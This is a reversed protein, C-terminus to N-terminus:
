TSGQCAAVRGRRVKSPRGAPTTVAAAEVRDGPVPAVDDAGAVDGDEHRGQQQDGGVLRHGVQGDAQSARAGHGGHDGAALEEAM